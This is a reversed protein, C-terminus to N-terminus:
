NLLFEVKYQAKISITGVPLAVDTSGDDSSPSIIHNAYPSRYEDIDREEISIAKGISQGIQAAAASAKEKATTIAAARAEDKYKRYESSGFSFNSVESVGILTVDTLFSEFKSIDRLKIVTTRSVSYGSFVSNYDDDSGKVKVREYTEKIALFDTKIDNDSIGYRKALSAIKAVNEDNQKKAKALEMDLKTVGLSFTVEDPVVLIEATGTVSISPMKSVDISQASATAAFILVLSILFINKM